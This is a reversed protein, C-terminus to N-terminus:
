GDGLLLGGSSGALSVLILEPTPPPNSNRTFDRGCDGMSEIKTSWRIGVTTLAM